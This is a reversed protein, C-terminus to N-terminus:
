KSDCTEGGDDGFNRGEKVEKRGDKTKEERRRTERGGERV